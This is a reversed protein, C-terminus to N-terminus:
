KHGTPKNFLQSSLLLWRTLAHVLSTWVPSSQPVKPQKLYITKLNILRSEDSGNARIVELNPLKPLLSSAKAGRQGAWRLDLTVRTILRDTANCVQRCVLRLITKDNNDLNNLILKFEGTDVFDLFSRSIEAM